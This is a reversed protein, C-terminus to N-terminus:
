ARSPRRGPRPQPLKRVRPLRASARVISLVHSFLPHDRNARYFRHYGNSWSTVLKLASLKALEDQVTRLALGSRGMLERVYLQKTPTTFLLRFIEARVKPLLVDLIEPAPKM